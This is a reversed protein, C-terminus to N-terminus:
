IVEELFILGNEIGWRFKNNLNDKIVLSNIADVISVNTTTQLNTRIGINSQNSNVVQELNNIDNSLLTISTANNNNALEITAMELDIIDMNENIIAIDATDTDLPKKLNYNTTLSPM